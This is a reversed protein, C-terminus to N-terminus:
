NKFYNSIKYDVNDNTSKKNFLEQNDIYWVITDKLGQEFNRLSEWGLETKIKTADIAYRRDHGPRDKVFKILKESIRDNYYKNLIKIIMKVLHINSIENSGGINYIDGPVGKRLVFDIAVCHDEVHLWDRVNLGDGYIPLTKQEMANKIILPILKEPFQRPGFNNSCRTINVPMKFTYFYSNVLLDASAKSASYPSSPNLVSNETFLGTKGLSGYVEDTSIQIFKCNEKWGHSPHYWSSKAVDLLNHSGFVNTLTFETPNILISRDVHSEAAFNIVSDINYDEFISSVLIRDNIDGRIFSFRNKSNSDLNTLNSLNGAYTLKDLGIITDEKHKKLYYHVFNSGIFGAVGTVLLIM